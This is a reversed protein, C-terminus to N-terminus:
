RLAISVSLGISAGVVQDRDNDIPLRVSVGPRFRAPGFAAALVLQDTFRRDVDETLIARGGVGGLFTFGPSRYGAQVLYALWLEADKTGLVGNETAIWALPGGRVRFMLGSPSAARFNAFASVTAVKPVFADERELDAAAGIMVPALRTDSALPARVGLEGFVQSGDRGGEIGIYPNGLTSGSETTSTGFYSLAFSGTAFPVEVVLSTKAGAPFRGSLFLALSASSQDGVNKVDPRLVELAVEGRTGSGLWAQQAALRGASAIGGLLLGSVIWGFRHSM